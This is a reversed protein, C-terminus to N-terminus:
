NFLVGPELSLANEPTEPLVFYVEMSNNDNLKMREGGAIPSRSTTVVIYMMM